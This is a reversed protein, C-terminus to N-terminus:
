IQKARLNQNWIDNWYQEFPMLFPYRNSVAIQRIFIFEKHLSVYESTIRIARYVMSSIAGRKYYLPVYSNWKLILGTLTPKRYITTSFWSPKWISLCRILIDHFPLSQDKENELETTFEISSHFSNLITLLKNIDADERVIALTDDVYRKWYVVGHQELQEM